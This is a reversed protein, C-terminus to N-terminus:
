LSKETPIFFSQKPVEKNHLVKKNCVYDGNVGIYKRAQELFKERDTM